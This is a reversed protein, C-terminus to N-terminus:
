EVPDGIVVRAASGDARAVCVRSRPWAGTLYAIRRGDRSPRAFFAEIGGVVEQGTGDTAVRTLLKRGAPTLGAYLLRGDPLFCPHIAGADATPVVAASAGDASVVHLRDRGNADRAHWVLRLGDASWAPNGAVASDATLRRPVGGEAGVVFLETAGDRDSVFAIRDGRPSWAPQRDRAPDRTLRREDSGDTRATYVDWNGDREASYALRRGDPSYDVWTAGTVVRRRMTGAPTATWISWAAGTDGPARSFESWAISLGDPSWAVDQRFAPAPRPPASDPAPAAATAALGVAAVLLRARKLM